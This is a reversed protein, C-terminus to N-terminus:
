KNLLQTEPMDILEERRDGFVAQLHPRLLLYDILERRTIGLRRATASLSSIQKSLVAVAKPGAQELRQIFDSENPVQDGAKLEAIRVLEDLPVDPPPNTSDAM